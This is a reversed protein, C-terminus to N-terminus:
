VISNNFPNNHGEFRSFGIICKKETNYIKKIM